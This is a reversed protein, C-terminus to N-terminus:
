VGRWAGRSVEVDGVGIEEGAGGVEWSADVDRESFSEWGFLKWFRM